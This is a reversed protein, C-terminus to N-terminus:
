EKTAVANPTVHLAPEFASAEVARATGSVTARLDARCSSCPGYYGGTTATGCRPCDFTDDPTV